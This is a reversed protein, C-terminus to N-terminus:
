MGYSEGRTLFKPKLVLCIAPIFILACVLCLFLSLIILLAFSQILPFSSFFLVAFGLMVAFANICIGRGITKLTIIVSTPYDNGQALEWKIRWFVQVTFDVGLGISISSLLATVMNLELGLWGMLGFTCFVAFVLPLSGLLGATLNRFILAVLLLIAAFAFLLSYYQGSVISESMEKDVLSFGGVVQTISDTKSLENLRNMIANVDTIKNASFQINILSKTYDFDVFQELDAPDGNMSYLELYQAVAERSDPIKNYGEDTPDNLAMSMKKVMTSLSTVSGVNPMKELEIEYQDLKNLLVPDKADGDVMVTIVKNGGFHQDAIKIAQNFPHKAPLVSNSDPAVKFFIFGVICVVFFVSFAAIIAKPHRTVLKGSRDLLGSFFGRGEGSLDRHPKGKKLLSMVAPVFLLSVILAFGIGISTVVGMQRAPILLHTVLGLIGAITTLGCLLVPIFLYSVSKQVIEKMTLGPETANIDQYRAIFYVGYNNAIALMMIPILVGILSLEWGFAPILAMCVVISFVVVSFPLLVGRIERFSIWLLIFMLLLGLPLLVMMDRGIKRNAEDRLIPQGSIMVKEAGPYKDLTQKVLDILEADAVTKNSSLMIITYRFDDSVVLKYALDNARIEARLLEIEDPTEPIQGIVPDVVMSGEESRINKAQMLSYVRKFAPMRSFARSLKDIRQLTSPNLVDPSEIVILIPDEKGFADEIKKTDQKSHMSNPLYSELDPNIHIKTLPIVCLGVCLLTAVIIVWRYRIIFNERKM